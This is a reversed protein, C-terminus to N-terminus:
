PYYGMEVVVLEDEWCVEEENGTDEVNHNGNSAPIKFVKSVCSPNEINTSLCLRPILEVCMEIECLRIPSCKPRCHRSLKGQHEKADEM